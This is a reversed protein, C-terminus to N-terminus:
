RGAEPKSVGQGSEEAAAGPDWGGGLSRYLDTLSRHYDLKAALLENKLSIENLRADIVRDYDSADLEFM